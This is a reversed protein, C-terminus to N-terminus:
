LMKKYASAINSLTASATLIMWHERLGSKALSHQLYGGGSAFSALCDQCTCVYLDQRLATRRLASCARFCPGQQLSCNAFNSGEGIHQAIIRTGLM